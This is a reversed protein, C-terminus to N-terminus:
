IGGLVGLIAGLGPAVQQVPQRLRLTDVQDNQRVSPGNIGLTKKFAAYHVTDVRRARRLGTQQRLVITEPDEAGPSGVTEQQVDARSVPLDDLGVALRVARGWDRIAPAIPQEVAHPWDLLERASGGRRLNIWGFGVGEIGARSGAWGPTTRRSTAPTRPARRGEALARRVRRTSCRASSWGARRLRRRALRGAARGLATATIAWNALVQCWGGDTLHAPAGRVIAEVM